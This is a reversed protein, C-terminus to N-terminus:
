RYGVLEHKRQTRGLRLRHVVPHHGGPVSGAGRLHLARAHHQHFEYRACQERQGRDHRHRRRHPQSVGSGGVGDLTLEVVEPPSIDDDEVRLWGFSLDQWSQDRLRDNDLDYAALTIQNLDGQAGTVEADGWLQSVDGATLSAWEWALVTSNVTTDAVVSDGASFQATNNTVWHAVTLSTNTLTRGASEVTAATGYALGKYYPDYLNFSMLLSSDYIAGDTLTYTVDQGTGSYSQNTGGNSLHMGRNDTWGAGTAAQPAIIDDDRVEIRILFNTTVNRLTNPGDDCWGSWYPPNASDAFSNWSGYTWWNGGESYADEASVTLYYEVDTDYNTMSFAAHVYNTMALDANGTALTNSAAFPKDIDWEQKVGGNTYEVIDWNPSVRGDTSVINFAFSGDSRNRNTAYVGSSDEWRLVFGFVNNEDRIESDLVDQIYGYREIREDYDGALYGTVNTGIYVLTPKPGEVDLKDVVRFWRTTAISLEGATDRSRVRWWYQTSTTSLAYSTTAADLHVRLQVTGNETGTVGNFQQNTSVELLYGTIQGDSDTSGAWSLTPNATVPVGNAPSSLVPTSPRSNDSLGAAAFKVDTWFDVAADSIDEQWASLNAANDLTNWPPISLTDILDATNEMLQVTGDGDNNWAGSNIYSGVTFRATKTGALNLDARAVKLEIANNVTSIAVNNNGSAPAEWYTGDQKYLEIRPAGDATVHHVSLQYESYHVAALGSGFYNGGIFAGADDGLWNMGTSAANTRTDVGIAVYPKTANVINTIKVLFYVWTDDAFVRFESIDGNSHDTNEPRMEGRKDTWIFEQLSSASSDRVTSPTGVWDAPNGDIVITQGGAATSANASAYTVSYYTWNESYFRYYYTTSPALGGDNFATLSGRYVVTGTGLPEGANYTAGNAPTTWGSDVTQRVILVDKVAGSVGRTWSLNIQSNTLTGDRVASAGTPPNLNQVTLAPNVATVASCATGATVFRSTVVGASVMQVRNSWYSNNNANKLWNLDQYTSYAGDQAWDIEIGGSQGLGIPYSQFVFSESDGLWATGPATWAANKFSNSGAWTPCTTAILGAWNTAFRIEDYFVKGVTGGADSSGANLQIRGINDIATGLTQSVDWTPETGPFADGDIIKYAKAALLQTDFDYKGVVLYVNGTDGNGSNFQALDFGSWYTTTGDGIGLTSWNGGSGKGFFAKETGGSNLLSIGAWKNSGYYQYSMMFAVYFTGTNVASDLSRQAKAAGGNGPDSSYVLNGAMVPYNNMNFFAPTDDTVAPSYNTRVTWTGSDVAWYNAGFGQGGIQSSGLAAGNTYSFPNLRESGAYTGMTVNDSLGDSYYNAGNVSYFAYYNTSGDPVVHEIATASGKYVVTGGGCAGGQSYSAGDTPDGPASDAKHVVLVDESAANQVWALRVMENGDITVTASDPDDPTAPAYALLNYWNTAIRVEDFYTDGPTGSGAGFEGASLRITNVWGVTNSAKSVTVDWSGPEESPVYDTGIKYASAKAEGDAWDYYGVIIYDNGSGATLAQASGTNDIGLQADQGGIEGIFLKESTNSWSLSLGAYKDAGANAYNLIYGFYIRDSKYTQGLPRYVKSEADNAPSMFLKNGSPSPYNTQAAFSGSANTALGTDGYWTGGWGQEGGWGTLATSNTYSFTEVVETAQFESTDDTATVGPSYHNNTTYSYFAYHHTTDSAVVHELAAGAGKWIVTGGGCATGVAYSTNQVPATSATGSKYVIMVDYSANKTWALDVLTKGDATASTLTPDPLATLTLTVPITRPSNSAANQGEGTGTITLTANYVGATMGLVSYTVTHAQTQGATKNTATIPAVSLWSANTSVVYSLSAGGINTVTFAGASPTSGVTSSPTKAAPDIGIGPAHDDTAQSAPNGSASNTLYNIGYGSGNYEYVRFHYTTAPNLGSVTVPGSGTGKYLVYNGTGIQAGGGFETHAAYPTGDVPHSDVAAGAHAVLIRDSGNGSTWSVDMRNTSINAFTLTYAQTTPETAYNILTVVTQTSSNGSTCSATESRVRFYYTAGETLGTVVQSTGAVTRNSYGPVYGTSAAMLNTVLIDDIGVGVGSAAGLTEFKVMVQTFDYTSLNFPTMATLSSTGPVRTGLSAWTSGNNTSVSVTITNKPADGGGYTRARFNLTQNTGPTFNMAPTTVRSASNTMIIYGSGQKVDDETWLGGSGTGLTGNHYANTSPGGALASFTANTSVDLFYGTAGAASNWASTFATYNTHSAILGTPALACITSESGALPIGGTYYDVYTGTGNYEFVTVAYLTGPDLGTLTFSSGSGNYCIKNGSAQDTASSFDADVGTPATGDVPSWSTTAAQKVVVIRNAGDGSTWNVTMQNMGVATFSLASAHTAPESAIITQAGGAATSGSKTGDSFLVDATTVASLNITHGYTPATAIDATIFIYGTNGTNIAQNLIPTTKTGPGLSSEFTHLKTDGSNWTADTSYWVILNTIDAAAYTGATTFSVNTLITNAVTVGLQFKHLVRNATGATVNAAAVQTGNDALAIAPTAITTVTATSSNLGTCGGDGEPRVRFYYTTGSTLGTVSQSTAGVALNSYGAVYAAGGTDTWILNNITPRAATNHNSIVLSTVTDVNITNFEATQVNTDYSFTGELTGNVYVAVAGGSGSFAQQVDFKLTAIGSPIDPTSIYAGSANQLCAAPNGNVTQDTRTKYATWVVATNNTWIRTLYSSTTGGGLGSCDNTRAEGGGEFGSDASVDLRYGSAGTSTSWAATFDTENTASAWVTAPAAPIDTTDDDTLGTASYNTGKYSWAKYYYPTCSDLSTHDQPSTGGKYVVNGGAFAAGLAPPTGTPTTFSGDLDYVIIVPDSKANLTFSLELSDLATDSVSFAVPVAPTRPAFVCYLDNGSKVISFSGGDTAATFNNTNVALNGEGTVSAGAMVKWSYGDTADWGTPNGYLNITFTASATIAGSATILDWQSGPTGAVNSIDMRMDGGSSLGLTGVSLGGVAGATAGPDVSGAITTNGQSGAGVLTAGSAISVAMNAAAANQIM